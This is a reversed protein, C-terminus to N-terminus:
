IIFKNIKKKAATQAGRGGICELILIPRSTKVSQNGKRSKFIYQYYSVKQVATRIVAQVIIEYKERM